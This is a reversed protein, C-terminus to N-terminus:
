TNLYRIRSDDMGAIIKKDNEAFRLVMAKIDPINPVCCHLQGSPISWHKTTKLGYTAVRDGKRNLCMATIPEEHRLVCINVFDGSTWMYIAGNAGLVTLHPGACTIRM